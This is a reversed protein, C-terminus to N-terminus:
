GLRLVWTDGLQSPAEGGFVVLRSGAVTASHARRASPGREVAIRRFAGARLDLRWLQASLGDDTAGGHVYWLRGRQASAYFARDSPRRDPSQERWERAALDLRWLDGLYPDADSQGGFLYLGGRDVAAGVLCRPTPRARGSVDTFGEGRALSWTDDFRGSNTFGHTVYLRGARRDYAAGAGYRPSPGAAALKRWRRKRVDFRWADGFFRDGSQGGFLLLSRRSEAVLNHGFRPAPRAGRTAIRRWRRTELDLRWLDGALGDVSLGGHVWVYRADTAAAAHRSRAPPGDGAIRKFSAASAGPALALAAALVAAAAAASRPRRPPV